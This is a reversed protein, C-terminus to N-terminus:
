RGTVGAVLLAVPTEGLRAHLIWEGRATMEFRPTAGGPGKGYRLLGKRLKGLDEPPELTRDAAALILAASDGGVFRLTYLGRPFGRGTRDASPSYFEVVGLLTGEPIEGEALAEELSQSELPAARLWLECFRFGRSEVVRVGEGVLAERVPEALEPPPAGGPQTRYAQGWALGAALLFSAIAKGTM